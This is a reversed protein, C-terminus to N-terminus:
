ENKKAINNIVEASEYDYVTLDINNKIAIEINETAIYGLIMIPKFIGSNRLDLAENINSVAFYDIGLYELEKAVCASGQGYANAKVVACMKVLNSISKIEKYNNKLKDLDVKLYSQYKFM